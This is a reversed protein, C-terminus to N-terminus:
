RKQGNNVKREKVLELNEKKLELIENLKKIKEEDIEQYSVELRELNNKLYDHFVIKKVEQIGRGLLFTM